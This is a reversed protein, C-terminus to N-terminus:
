HGTILFQNHQSQIHGLLSVSFVSFWLCLSIFVSVCLTISLSLSMPHHVCVFVSVYPSLSLFLYMPHHVSVFVYSSSCLCLCLCLTISLYLSLSMPHHVSVFVSVYPSQCPLNWPLPSDFLPTACSLICLPVDTIVSIVCFSLWLSVPPYKSLCRSLPGAVINTRMKLRCM